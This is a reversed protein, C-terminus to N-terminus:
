PAAKLEASYTAMVAPYSVTFGMRNGQIIVQDGETRTTRLEMKDLGAPPLNTLQGSVEKTVADGVQSLLVPLIQLDEVPAIITITRGESLMNWDSRIFKGRLTVDGKVGTLRVRLIPQNDSGRSIIIGRPEKGPKMAQEIDRRPQSFKQPSLAGRGTGSMEYGLSIDRIIFAMSTKSAAYSEVLDDIRVRVDVGGAPAAQVVTPVAQVVSPAPPADASPAPQAVAPAAALGLLMTCVMRASRKGKM